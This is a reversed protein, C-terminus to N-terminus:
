LMIAEIYVVMKGAKSGGSTFQTVIADVFEGAAVVILLEGTSAGSVPM